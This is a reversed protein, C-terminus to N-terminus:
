SRAYSNIDALIDKHSSRGTFNSILEREREAKVTGRQGEPTGRSVTPSTLLHRPSRFSQSVTPVGNAVGPVRRERIKRAFPHIEGVGGHLRTSIRETGRTYCIRSRSGPGALRPMVIGFPDPQATGYM